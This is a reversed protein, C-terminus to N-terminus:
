LALTKTHLSSRKKLTSYFIKTKLRALGHRQLDFGNSQPRAYSCFAVDTLVSYGENPFALDPIKRSFILCKQLRTSREIGLDELTKPRFEIRPKAAAEQSKENLRVTLSQLIETCNKHYELLSEAL